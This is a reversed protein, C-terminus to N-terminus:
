TIDAWLSAAEPWHVRGLDLALYDGQEKGDPWGFVFAPIM